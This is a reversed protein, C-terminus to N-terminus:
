YKSSQKQLLQNIFPVKLVNQFDTPISKVDLRTAMTGKLFTLTQSIQLSCSQLTKEM